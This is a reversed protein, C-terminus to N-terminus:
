SPPSSGDPADQAPRALYPWMEPGSPRYVFVAEDRGFVGTIGSFDAEARSIRFAHIWRGQNMFVLICETDQLFEVLFMKEKLTAPKFGTEKRISDFQSYPGYVFLTDWPFSTCERLDIRTGSGMDLKERIANRFRGEGGCGASLLILTSLLICSRLTAYVAPM